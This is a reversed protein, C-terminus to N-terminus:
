PVPLMATVVLMAIVVCLESVLEARVLAAAATLACHLSLLRCLASRMEAESRRQVQASGM